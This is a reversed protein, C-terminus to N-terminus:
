PFILTVQKQGMVLKLAECNAGFMTHCFVASADGSVTFPNVIDVSVM